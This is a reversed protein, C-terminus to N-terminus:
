PPARHATSAFDPAKMAPRPLFPSLSDEAGQTQPGSWSQREVPHASSQPAHWHGSGLDHVTNGHVDRGAHDSPDRPRVNVSQADSRGESLSRLRRDLDNSAFHACSRLADLSRRTRGSHCQTPHGTTDDRGTRDVTRLPAFPAVCARWAVTRRTDSAGNRRRDAVTTRRTRRSQLASLRPFYKVLAPLPTIAPRNRGVRRSNSRRLGRPEQEERDAHALARSPSPFPM